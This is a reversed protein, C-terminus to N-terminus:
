ADCHLLEVRVEINVWPRHVRKLMTFDENGIVTCFGVKVDSVVLAEKVGVQM